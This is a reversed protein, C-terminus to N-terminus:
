VVKRRYISARLSQHTRKEVHLFSRYHWIGFGNPKTSGNVPSPHTHTYICRRNVEGELARRRTRGVAGTEREMGGHREPNELRSDSDAPCTPPPRSCRRHRPQWSPPPDTPKVLAVITPRQRRRGLLQLAFRQGLLFHRRIPRNADVGVPDVIEEVKSM